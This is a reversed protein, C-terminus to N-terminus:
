IRDPHLGQLAVHPGTHMSPVVIATQPLSSSVSLSPLPQFDGAQSLGFHCALTHLSWNSNWSQASEQCGPPLIQSLPHEYYPSGPVITDNEGVLIANGGQFGMTNSMFISRLLFFILPINRVIFCTSNNEQNKTYDKRESSPFMFFPFNYSNNMSTSRTGILLSVVKYLQHQSEYKSNM